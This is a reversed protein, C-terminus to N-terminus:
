PRRSVSTTGYRQTVPVVPTVITPSEAIRVPLVPAVLTRSLTWSDTARLRRLEPPAPPDRNLLLTAEAVHDHAAAVVQEVFAGPIGRDREARM